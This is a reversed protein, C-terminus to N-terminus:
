KSVGPTVFSPLKTGYTPRADAPTGGVKPTKPTRPGSGTGGPGSGGPGAVNGGFKNGLFTNNQFISGKLAKALKETTTKATKEAAKEVSKSIKEPIGLMSKILALPGSLGTKEVRSTMAKASALSTSARLSGGEFLEKMAASIRINDGTPMMKRRQLIGRGYGSANPDQQLLMKDGIETMKNFGKALKPNNVLDQINVMKSAVGTLNKILSNSGMVAKGFFAAVWGFGMKFIAFLMRIQPIIIVFLLFGGILKKIAPSMNTVFEEIKQIVPLIKSIVGGVVPVLQRGISLMSERLRNFNTATTSIAMALEAQMTANAAAVGGISQMFIERGTETGVKALYDSTGAFEKKLLDSAEKQAGQIVDARLTYEGNVEEIASRHLNTLDIVKNLSVEEMGAQRLRLNVTEELTKAIQAESSGATQLATQFAAMQSIAVEMRPGQRVGFLRSFFELAGQEGKSKKLQSYGDVLRQISEMGVDAAMNFDGGIESNLQKIISANQKTLSVLRQLSVKISNASAGVQFGAAVMPTLLAATETMSLGFTTAAASVEPFADAIDKLSLSTKNEILNFLALQGQVEDLISTLEKANTIDFTMGANQAMDRRVRVVNQYLSQIFNQSSSIDLNGLKEAAATFETLRIVADSPVGLEAFDGALSQILVRSTGFKRTIGDLATDIIKLEDALLQAGNAMGEFNDGILKRLRVQEQELKTFNFFAAKFALLMPMTAATMYYASRQATQGAQKMKMGFQEVANGRMVKTVAGMSDNVANLHMRTQNYGALTQPTMTGAAAARNQAATLADLKKTTETITKQVLSLNTRYQNFSQSLVGTSRRTTDLAKNLQEQTNFNKLAAASLNALHQSLGAVEATLGAVEGKGTVSADIGIKTTSDGTDSM